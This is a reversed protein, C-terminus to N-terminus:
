AALKEVFGSVLLLRRQNCAGQFWICIRSKVRYFRECVAPKKNDSIGQLFCM